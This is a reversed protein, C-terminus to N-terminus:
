QKKLTYVYDNLGFAATNPDIFHYELENACGTIVTKWSSGHFGLSAAIKVPDASKDREHMEGFAGQFLWDAPYDKVRYIPGKCMLISPGVIEKPKITVTKGVLSKMESPNPRAPDAWPAVVASAIKWAGLYFPDAALAASASVGAILLAVGLRGRGFIPIFQNFPDSLRSVEAM